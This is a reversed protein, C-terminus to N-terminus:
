IINGDNGWDVIAKILDSIKENKIDKMNGVIHSLHRRYAEKSIKKEKIAFYLSSIFVDQNLSNAPIMPLFSECSDIFNDFNSFLFSYFRHFLSGRGFESRIITESNKEFYRIKYAVDMKSSFIFSDNIPDTFEYYLKNILNKKEAGWFYAMDDRFAYKIANKRTIDMVDSYLLDKIKGYIRTKQKNLHLRFNSLHSSFVSFFTDINDSDSVIFFDDVYRLKVVNIYQTYQKDFESLIIRMFIEALLRAYAPGQPVGYRKSTLKRMLHENYSILYYLENYTEESLIDELKDSISLFDISDYFNQIDTVLVYSDLWLDLSLYTDIAAIYNQWLIYWNIFLENNQVPSPIYSFGNKPCNLKKYVDLALATTLVRDEPTLIVMKREKISQDDKIEKRSFFEFYIESSHQQKQNKIREIKAEIFTYDYESIEELRKLDIPLIVEDNYEAYHKEAKALNSIYSSYNAKKITKSIKEVKLHLAKNLIDLATKDNYINDPELDYLINLYSITAPNYSNQFKEYNEAFINEDYIGFTQLISIFIDKGKELPSFTGLLVLFDLTNSTGNKIKSLILNYVPIEMLADFVEKTDIETSIKNYKKYLVSSFDSMNILIDKSNPKYEDLIKYQESLDVEKYFSYPRSNFFFSQNGKKHSSLPIKVQKGVINNKASPTQPFKDLGFETGLLNEINLASCISNLLTFGEKKEILCNFIIWIHIGRRGSFETLYRIGNKDLYKTLPIIINDYLFFLKAENKEKNLGKDKIDFDLCVWRIQGKITQQYCGLSGKVKIMQALLDSNFIGIKKRRYIGDQGQVAVSSTNVVYLDYLKKAILTEISM